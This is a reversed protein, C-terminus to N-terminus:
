LASKVRSSQPEPEPEAPRSAPRLAIVLLLSGCLAVLMIGGATIHM